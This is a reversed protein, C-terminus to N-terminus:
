NSSRNEKEENTKLIYDPLAEETIEMGDSTIIIREIINELERVNGLWRYNLLRKYVQSSLRKNEKYRLNFHELFRSILNILDEPRSRLPPIELNIVNIRYFLDERFRGTEVEQRLNRNSAAILRFDSHITKTGGVRM